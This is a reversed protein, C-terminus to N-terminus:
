VAHIHMKSFAVNHQKNKMITYCNLFGMALPFGPDYAKSPHVNSLLFISSVLSVLIQLLLHNCYFCILCLDTLDLSLTDWRFGLKINLPVMSSFGDQTDYQKEGFPEMLMNPIHVSYHTLDM